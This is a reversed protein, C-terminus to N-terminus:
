NRKRWRGGIGADGRGEQLAWRGLEKEEVLGDVWRGVRVKRPPRKKPVIRAMEPEPQDFKSGRRPKPRERESVKSNLLAAKSNRRAVVEGAGDKSAIKMKPAMVVRSSVFRPRKNAPRRRLDNAVLRDRWGRLGSQLVVAAARQQPTATEETLELVAVEAVAAEPASETPAVAQHVKRLGARM